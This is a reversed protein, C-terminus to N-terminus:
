NFKFSEIQLVYKDAQEKPLHDCNACRIMLNGTDYDKNVLISLHNCNKNM